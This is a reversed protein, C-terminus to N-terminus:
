ENGNFHKRVLTSVLRELEEQFEKPVRNFEFSISRDKVRKRAYTDKDKFECLPTVVQKAKEPTKQKESSYEKFLRIISVKLEDQALINKDLNDMEDRVCGIVESLSLKNKEIEATADLLTKYDSYSLEAVVPFLMVVDAPVSACQIARTVKAQSMSNAEAIEKQNMGSERLQILRLGIERINHERATQIDAALKRADEPSIDTDTVLIDLGTGAFIAAARRRSGDLIDIQDGIRRGIAPFFQQLKITRIIDSVSERTLASQDRGNVLFNVTTTSEVKDAAIHELKFVATTGSALTFRHETATGDEKADLPSANLTRGITPRKTQM